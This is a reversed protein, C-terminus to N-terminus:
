YKNIELIKFNKQPTYYTKDRFMQERETECNLYSKVQKEGLTGPAFLFPPSKTLLKRQSKLAGLKTKLKHIVSEQLKM